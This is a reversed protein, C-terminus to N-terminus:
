YQRSLKKRIRQVANDVSKPQKSLREAIESYTLGELYLELVKSEFSSFLGKLSNTLERLKEQGIVLEEPNDQDRCLAYSAVPDTDPDFLPQEFPVYDNLPIHKNRSAARIASYLRHRICLRAYTRFSASREPSFERIAKILGLLGEQILDEGDGGALFYPRACARVLRTYRIVLLEEADRSGLRALACLEEDSMSNLDSEYVV